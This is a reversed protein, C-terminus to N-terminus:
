KLDEDRNPIRVLGFFLCTISRDRPSIHYIGRTAHGRAVGKPVGRPYYIVYGRTGPWYGKSRESNGRNAFPDYIQGLYPSCPLLIPVIDPKGNESANSPRKSITM